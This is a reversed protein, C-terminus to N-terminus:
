EQRTIKKWVNVINRQWRRLMRLFLQLIKQIAIILIASLEVADNILGERQFPTWDKIANRKEIWQQIDKVAYHLVRHPVGRYVIFEKKDEPTAVSRFAIEVQEHLAVGDSDSHIFLIPVKIQAMAQGQRAEFVAKRIEKATRVRVRGHYELSDERDGEPLDGVPLNPFFWALLSFVPELVRKHRQVWQSANQDVELPVALIVVGALYKQVEPYVQLFRLIALAGASEGILFVGFEKESRLMLTKYTMVYVTHVWRRFSTIKGLDSEHEPDNSLGHYPFDCTSVTFRMKRKLIQVLHQVSPQESHGTYGHFVVARGKTYKEPLYHPTRAITLLFKKFRRDKYHRMLAGELKDPVEM